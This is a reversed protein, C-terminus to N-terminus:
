AAEPFPKTESGRQWSLGFEKGGQRVWETVYLVVDAAYEQLRLFLRNEREGFTDACVIVSLGLLPRLDITEINDSSRIVGESDTYRTVYQAYGESDTLTLMIADAPRRRAQRMELLAQLGHVNM